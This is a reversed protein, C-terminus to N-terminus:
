PTFQFALGPAWAKVERDRCLRQSSRVAPAGSAPRRWGCPPSRAAARRSSWWGRSSPSSSPRAGSGARVPGCCCRASYRASAWWGRSWSRCRRSWPATKTGSTLWPSSGSGANLLTRKELVRGRRGRTDRWWSWYYTMTGDKATTSGGRRGEPIQIFSDKKVKISFWPPFLQFWLDTRNNQLWQNNCHSKWRNQLYLVQEKGQDNSSPYLIWTSELDWTSRDHPINM